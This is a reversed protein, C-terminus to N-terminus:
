FKNKTDVKVGVEINISTYNTIGLILPIAYVPFNILLSKFDKTIFGTIIGNVVFSVVSMSILGISTIKIYEKNNKLQDNLYLPLAYQMVIILYILVSLGRSVAPYYMSSSITLNILNIIFFSMTALTISVNGNTNCVDLFLKDM